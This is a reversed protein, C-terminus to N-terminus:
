LTYRFGVNLMKNKTYISTGRPGIVAQISRVFTPEVYFSLSPQFAYALGGGVLYHATYNTSSKTNIRERFNNVRSNFRGDDLIIEQLEFSKTLLFRNLIGTKLSLAFSGIAWEKKVLLPMDLYERDSNFAINININADSAVTSVASRALLIDTDVAGEASGLQLSINSEYEGSNNLREQLFQYPITRNHQILKNISAYRLGTELSWGKHWKIGFQLGTTFASQQTERRPIFEHKDLKIGKDKATTSIPAYDVAVYFRPRKQLKPVLPFIKGNITRHNIKM